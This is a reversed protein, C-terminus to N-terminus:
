DFGGARSCALIEAAIAGTLCELCGPALLSPEEQYLGKGYREVPLLYAVQMPGALPSFFLTTEPFRRRLEGQIASYPEGACAVWVLDGTRLVSFPLRYGPGAPLESLRGLWRRAREARAGADRAAITDGAAEATQRRNEWQAMEAALADRAPLAKLPLNVAYAGGAFRGAAARREPSLPDFSWQGLTAGSVVPGRYQLDTGPPPMGTLLSLAAYAVQRGNRDAVAPDGTYGDRPGLDGCAGLMFVCPAGSEREVTERLAGPYDPSLLTNEWALTTPHCGYNVLTALPQDMCDTVRAVVLTQDAPTDPNFGCAYSGAIADWFDRNAAMACSGSAATLTAERMGAVADRAARALRRKLVGLYGPIRDGGPLPIRDSAFLGASHSHSFALVVHERPVATAKAVARRLSDHQGAGLGVLDLYLHLHPPGAADAPRALAVVDALLPRHVGTACDHRAAGWMRHYIGVPPTIEVRAHGFRVRATPTTVIRGSV